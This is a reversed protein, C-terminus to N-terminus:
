TQEPYQTERAPRSAMRSSGAFQISANGSIWASGGDSTSLCSPQVDIARSIAESPPQGGCASVTTVPQRSCM